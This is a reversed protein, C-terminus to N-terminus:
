AMYATCCFVLSSVRWRGGGAPWLDDNSYDVVTGCPWVRELDTRPSPPQGDARRAGLAPFGAGPQDICSDVMDRM